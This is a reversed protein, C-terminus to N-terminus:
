REDVGTWSRGTEGVYKSRPRILRNDELQELAHATWGGSRSIAFIASFLERPIGIGHLLVATYFEVNTNLDLGPKHEELLDVGAQEAERASEFFDTNGSDEYFSEAADSLVAARPDRVDYV